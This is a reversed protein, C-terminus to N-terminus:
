ESQAEPYELYIGMEELEDSTYFLEVSSVLVILPLLLTLSLTCILHLTNM